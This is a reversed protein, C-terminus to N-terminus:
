VFDRETLQITDGPKLREELIKFAIKEEIVDQIARRMPRAGFEPDTGEKMVADLLVDTVVLEFGKKKLRARLEELMLSAIKKQQIDSLTEFIVVNDFRNILEPKFINDKIIADVIADKALAPRERRRVLEWIRDSGANSTAIFIANRANIRRGHSDTFFGEDLIQLFLDHVEGSAKEFEDLLVVGYPYDHLASALVGTTREDGLLHALAGSDSFESMDFRIMREESGFFVHALAKATETKGVGTSGLFLFSGIPREKNQIGARSRRMTSAIVKIADEQGVVREHLREELHILLEREGERVPGTPIGTKQSVCSDVFEPTVRMSRSQNAKIAVEALLGLAKDPMVGDVLYQDASEAVRVLSPYTFYITHKREYKWVTDELVRITSRLDPHEIIVTQFQQSLESQKEMHAHWSEPSATAIVQIFSSTLFRELLEHADVQISETDKFFSTIDEIVLIINGAEEAQVMLKLFAYEFEEKSPHMTTFAKTDFVILHKGTISAVSRGERMKRGLEVLMDMEGVGPEAILLVNASRGRTLITEIKTIIENAYASENTMISLIGTTNIDRMYRKLDAAVGYSFERGIGQVRGLNDRSWWRESNLVQADTRSIWELTGLFLEESIGKKFLFERLSLDATFLFTGVEYTGLFQGEKLPLETSLIRKRPARLYTVMDPSEIGCRFLVARGFRSLIFGHTVDGEHGILMEGVGFTIGREDSFDETTITHMGRFYLTNYFLSLQLLVILPLLLIFFIGTYIRADGFVSELVVAQALISDHVIYATIIVALFLVILGLINRLLKRTSRSIFGDLAVAPEYLRLESQMDSM